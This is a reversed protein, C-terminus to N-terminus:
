GHEGLFVKVTTLQSPVRTLDVATIPVTNSISAYFSDVPISQTSGDASTIRVRAKGGVTKVILVHANIVGGFQVTVPSDVTLDITDQHKRILTMSEDIPANLSPDASPAGNAPATTYSGGLQFIDAM